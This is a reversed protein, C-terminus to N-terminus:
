GWLGQVSSTVSVRHNNFWQSAWVLGQDKCLTALSPDYRAPTLKPVVLNDLVQKPIVSADLTTLKKFILLEKSQVRVAKKWRPPLTHAMKVLNEVSDYESLLAVANVAGCKSLGPIGDVSDGCLALYDAMQDARVGYHEEVVAKNWVEPGMGRNRIISLRDDVLSTFDKDTSKILVSRPARKNHRLSAIAAIADDADVGKKHIVYIGAARLIIKSAELQDGVYDEMSSARHAKYGSYMKQKSARSGSGDFVVCCEDPKFMDIDSLVAKLTGHLAGTPRGNYSLRALGKSGASRRLENNGDWIMLRTFKSM